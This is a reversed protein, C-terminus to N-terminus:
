KESNAVYDKIHKMANIAREKREDDLSHIQEDTFVFANALVHQPHHFYYKCDSDIKVLVAKRAGHKEVFSGIDEAINKNQEEAYKLVIDISEKRGSAFVLEIIKCVDVSVTKLNFEENDKLLRGKYKLLDDKSQIMPKLLFELINPAYVINDNLYPLNYYRCYLKQFIEVRDNEIILNYIREDFEPFYRYALKNSYGGLIYGENILLEIADINKFETIYHLITCDYEDYKLLADDTGDKENAIMEKLTDITGIQAATYIRPRADYNANYEGALMICEMTVGLAKALYLIYETGPYRGNKENCWRAINQKLQQETYGDGMLRCMKRSLEAQSLNLEELRSKIYKAVDKQEKAM